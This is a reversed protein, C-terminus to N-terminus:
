AWSDSNTSCQCDRETSNRKCHSLMPRGRAWCGFLMSKKVNIEQGMLQVWQSTALLMMQLTM